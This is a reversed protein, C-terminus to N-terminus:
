SALECALLHELAELHRALSPVDPAWTTVGHGAVLYGRAGPLDALRREVLAALQAMDQSNPVVPLVLDQEHS